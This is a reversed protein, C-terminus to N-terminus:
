LWANSRLADQRKMMEDIVMQSKIFQWVKSYPKENISAMGLKQRVSSIHQLIDGITGDQGAKEKAWNTIDKLQEIDKTPTTSMEIGFTRFVDVPVGQWEYAAIGTPTANAQVSAVPAEVTSSKAIAM